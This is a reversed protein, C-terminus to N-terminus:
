LYSSSGSLHCLLWGCPLNLFHGGACMSIAPALLPSLACALAYGSPAGGLVGSRFPSPCLARSKSPLWLTCLLTTPTDVTKVEDWVEWLGAPVIAANVSM